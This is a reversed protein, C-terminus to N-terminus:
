RCVWAANTGLLGVYSGHIPSGVQELEYNDELVIVPRVRARKGKSRGVLFEASTKV